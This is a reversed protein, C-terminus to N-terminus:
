VDELLTSKNLYIRWFLAHTDNQHQMLIKTNGLVINSHSCFTLGYFEFLFRVFVNKFLTKEHENLNQCGAEDKVSHNDERREISSFLKAVQVLIKAM